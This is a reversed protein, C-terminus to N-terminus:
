ATKPNLRWAYNAMIFYGVIPGAGFGLLPVPTVQLPALLYLATFYLMVAFISPSGTRHALWGLTIIPLAVALVAAFLAWLSFSAAVVFVGEVYPVPALPDPLSWSVVAALLLVALTTLRVLRGSKSLGLIPVSAIAFATLQPADPQAFLGLGTFAAAVISITATVRGGSLARHWLLLFMPLVVPAIYLRFGFLGLWRHPASSTESLIPACVLAAAGLLLWPANKLAASTKAFHVSVLTAVIATIAVIAQQVLLALPAAVVNLILLSGLLAPISAVILIHPSM